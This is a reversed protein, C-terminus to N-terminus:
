TRFAEAPSSLELPLLDSLLSALMYIPDWAPNNLPKKRASSDCSNREM